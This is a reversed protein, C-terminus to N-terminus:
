ATKKRVKRQGEKRAAERLKQRLEPSEFLGEGNVPDSDTLANVQQVAERNLDIKRKRPGAV